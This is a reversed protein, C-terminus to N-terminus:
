YPKGHNSRNKTTRFFAFYLSILVVPLTLIYSNGLTLIDAFLLLVFTAATLAFSLLMMNRSLPFIVSMAITPAFVMYAVFMWHFLLALDSGWYAGVCALAVIAVIFGRGFRREKGSEEAWPARKEIWQRHGRDLLSSVLFVETDATSLIAALTGFIAVAFLPAPLASQLVSLYASEPNTTLGTVKSLIGLYVILGGYAALLVGGIIFGARAANSSKAAFVRQWVDASALGIVVGSIMVGWFADFDPSEFGASPLEASAPSLIGYAAYVAVLVLFAMVIGQVLDTVMVARFGGIFLYLCILSACLLVSGFYSVSSLQSIVHGGASLQLVLLAFFPFLHSLLVIGGVTSGYKQHAYDVYTVTGPVADSLVRPSLLALLVFSIGYGVFLAVGAWGFVYGFTAGAVLEGGGILTFLGFATILWGSSKDGVVFDEYSARPRYFWCLVVIILGYASLATLM